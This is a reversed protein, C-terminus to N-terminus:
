ESRRCFENLAGEEQAVGVVLTRDEVILTRDVRAYLVFLDRWGRPGDSVGVM